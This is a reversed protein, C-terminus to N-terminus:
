IDFTSVQMNCLRYRIPEGRCGDPTHCRRLQQAVGGDCSRSCTSWGSWISWGSKARKQKKNNDITSQHNFKTHHTVQTVTCVELENDQEGDASWVNDPQGATSGAVDDDAGIADAADSLSHHDGAIASVLYLSISQSFCVLFFCSFPFLSCTGSM